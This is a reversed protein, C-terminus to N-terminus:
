AGVPPLGEEFSLLLLTVSPSVGCRLLWDELHNLATGATAGVVAIVIVVIAYLIIFLIMLPSLLDDILQGWSSLTAFYDYIAELFELIKIFPSLLFKEFYYYTSM